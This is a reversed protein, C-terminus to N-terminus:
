YWLNEFNGIDVATNNLLSFWLHDYAHLEYIIGDKGEFSLGEKIANNVAVKLM